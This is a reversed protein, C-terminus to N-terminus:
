QAADVLDLRHEIRDLRTKVAAVDELCQQLLTSHGNLTQQMALQLAYMTKQDDRVKALEAQMRKLHELVLNEVEDTM